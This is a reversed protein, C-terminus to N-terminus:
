FIQRTGLGHTYLKGPHDDLGARVRGQRYRFAVRPQRHVFTRCSMHSILWLGRIHVLGQKGTLQGFSMHAFQNWCSLGFTRYDGKYRDVCKQFEYHNVLSLVQAFVYNGANM